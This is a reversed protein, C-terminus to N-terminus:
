SISFSVSPLGFLFGSLERIIDFKLLSQSKVVLSGDFDKWISLVGDGYNSVLAGFM